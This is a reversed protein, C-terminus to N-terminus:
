HQDSIGEIRWSEQWKCLAWRDLWWYQHRGRLRSPHSERGAMSHCGRARPWASRGGRSRSRNQSPSCDKGSCLCNFLFVLLLILAVNPAIDNEVMTLSVISIDIVLDQVIFRKSRTARFLRFIPDSSSSQ